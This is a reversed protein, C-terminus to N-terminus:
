LLSYADTTMQLLLIDLECHDVFQQAMTPAVKVHIRCNTAKKRSTPSAHVIICPPDRHTPLRVRVRTM